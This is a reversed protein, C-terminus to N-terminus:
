PAGLRREAQELARAIAMSFAEASQTAGSVVDVEAGQRVVVQPPLGAIMSCPYRMRCTTIESSAIRGRRIVVTAFVRGHPSDGWASYAGDRYLGRHTPHSALQERAPATRVYGVAYSTLLVVVSAAVALTAPRGTVRRRKEIHQRGIVSVSSM